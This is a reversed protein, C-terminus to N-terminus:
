HLDDEEKRRMEMEGNEVAKGQLCEEQIYGENGNSSNGLRQKGAEQRM